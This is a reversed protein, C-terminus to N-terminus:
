SKLDFRKLKITYQKKTVIILCLLITKPIAFFLVLQSFMERKWLTIM